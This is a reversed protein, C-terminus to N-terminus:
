ASLAFLKFIRPRQGPPSATYLEEVFLSLPTNASAKGHFYDPFQNLNVRNNQSVLRRCIMVSRLRVNASGSTPWVNAGGGSDTVASAMYILCKARIAQFHPTATRATLCHLTRRCIPQAPHKGLSKWSFLGSVPQLKVRNNQSVLRRCIM